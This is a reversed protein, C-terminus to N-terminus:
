PRPLTCFNASITAPTASAPSIENAAAMEESSQTEDCSVYPRFRYPSHVVSAARLRGTPRVSRLKPFYRHERDYQLSRTTEFTSRRLIPSSKKFLGCCRIDVSLRIFSVGIRKDTQRLCENGRTGESMKMRWHSM